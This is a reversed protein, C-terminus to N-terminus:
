PKVGFLRNLDQASPGQSGAPKNASKNTKQGGTAGPVYKQQLASSLGQVDMQLRNAEDNKRALDQLLEPAASGPGFENAARANAGLQSEMTRLLQMQTNLLQIDAASARGERARILLARIEQLKLDYAQALQVYQFTLRQQFQQQQVDMRQEAIGERSQSQALVRAMRDEPTDRPALSSRMAMAQQLDQMDQATMQGGFISPTQPEMPAQGGGGYSVQPQSQPAGAQPGQPMVPPPQQSMAMGMQGPQGQQASPMQGPQLPPAGAPTRQIARWDQVPGAMSAPAQPAGVQTGMQGPTMQPQAPQGMEGQQMLAKAAIAARRPDIQGQAMAELIRQVGPHIPRMGAIPGKLGEAAQGFGGMILAANPNVGTAM